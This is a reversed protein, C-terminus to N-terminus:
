KLLLTSGEGRCGHKCFYKLDTLNKPHVFAVTFEKKVRRRYGGNEPCLTLITYEYNKYVNKTTFIFFALSIM